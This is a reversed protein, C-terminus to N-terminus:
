HGCLVDIFGRLYPQRERKLREGHLIARVSRLANDLSENIVVYDYEEWHSIESAAKEMRQKVVEASDQARAHLRRELEHLSPPLIFVSVLDDRCNKALQRTGQWDIDFLVDEGRALVGMVHQKPTGYHNGFVLANELLEGDAAMKQFKTEDVFYYDKGHTEGPRMPRTTVSVSLTIDREEELLRRSLTTKGAGSPSSLVFMIGRRATSHQPTIM